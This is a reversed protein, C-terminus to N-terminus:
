TTSELCKGIVGARQVDRAKTNNWQAGSPLSWKEANRQAFFAYQMARAQSSKFLMDMLQREREMGKSYPLMAAARVAQVCAVPAMAGRSRKKVQVLAADCVADVNVVWVPARLSLRRPNIPQGAVCAYVFYACLIIVCVCHACVGIVSLALEMAAQVANGETVQDVIGLQLAEQASVHRGSSVCM